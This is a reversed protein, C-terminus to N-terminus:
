NEREGPVKPPRVTSYGHPQSVLSQMYKKWEKRGIRWGLNFRLTTPTIGLIIALHRILWGHSPTIVTLEKIPPEGLCINRKVFSELFNPWEGCPLSRLDYVEGATCHPHHNQDAQRTEWLTAQLILETGLFTCSKRQLNIFFNFLVLSVVFPMSLALNKDELKVPQHQYSSVPFFNALM